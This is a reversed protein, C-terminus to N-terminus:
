VSEGEAELRRIGASSSRAFRINRGGGGGGGGGRRRGALTSTDDLERTSVPVSSAMISGRPPDASSLPPDDRLHGVVRAFVACADGNDRILPPPLPLLLLLLLPHITTTSTAAM